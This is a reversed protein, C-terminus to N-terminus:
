RDALAGLTEAEAVSATLPKEVLVHKGAELAESALAFHTSRRRSSWPTLM